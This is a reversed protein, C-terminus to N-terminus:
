NGASIRFYYPQGVTLGTVEYSTMTPDSLTAITTWNTQDTSQQITLYTANDAKNVWTLLIEGTYCGCGAACNAPAAPANNDVPTSESFTAQSAAATATITSTFNAILPPQFYAQALGSSNTTAVYTATPQTSTSTAALAGNGGSVTFTVPANALPTGSANTVKVVLPNSLFAGPTGSQTNGSVVTITPTIIAGGQSYYNTPDSGQQYDQLLTLGNGDPSSTASNGIQGFYQLEWWDPLGNGDSDYPVNVTYTSALPASELGQDDVAVFNFHFNGWTPPTWALSFPATFSEGVQTGEVYYIIAVINHGTSATATPQLTFPSGMPVSSPPAAPSTITSAIGTAGVGMIQRPTGDIQSVGLGLEGDLNTGWSVVTGDEKLVVAHYYGMAVDIAKGTLSTLNPILHQTTTDDGLQYRSNDGWAWVQGNATLALTSYADGTIKKVPESGFSSAPIEVPTTVATTTGNGLQGDENDGWVWLNGSTDVAFAHQGAAWISSISSLGAVQAVTGASMTYVTGDSKLALGFGQGLSVAQIGSLGSLEQFTTVDSSGILGLAAPDGAGWVNGANDLLLQNKYGTAAAVVNSVDSTQTPTPNLTGLALNGGLQGYNNLGWAYADGYPDVAVGAGISGPISVLSNMGAFLTPINRESTTGDGLSGDFNQGWAVSTGGSLLARSSMARATVATATSSLSVYAPAGAVLTSFLSPGTGSINGWGWVIGSQQLAVVHQGGAALLSYSNSDNPTYPANQVQYCAQELQGTNNNGWGVITGSQLAITYDSDAVLCTLGSVNPVTQPTTAQTTTGNGLQCNYNAGWAEITGDSMLAVSHETGCAIAVCSGAGLIEVPTVQGTTSTTGNGIQGYTNDGWAWVSGDVCLALNHWGHTAIAVIDSLGTVKVPALRATRDGTGLQGYTNNGWAWVSGDSGLALSHRSGGAVAIIPITITSAQVQVPSNRQIQTGDGIEGDANYGWAWVNGSSDVALSHSDGAGVAIASSFATIEQPVKSGALNDGLQGNADSGWTWVTGDSKLLVSHNWGAALAGGIMYVLSTTSSSNFGPAVANLKLVESSSVMITGGSPVSLSSTTPASGDSTYYITAGPTTSSVTVNQASAYTGAGPSATPAVSAPGTVSVVPSVSINNTGSAFVQFVNSQGSTFDSVSYSTASNTLTALITWSNDNNQEEVIWSGISDTSGPLTWSLNIDGSTDSTATLNTVSSLSLDFDFVQKLQGINAAINDTYTNQHLWSPTLQPYGASSLRGYFLSAITKLQGVNMATYDSPKVNSENYGNTAYDQQWGYVLNTLVPGAGGQAALDVNLEDVAKVSFQKVQGQTVAAYDNPVYNTTVIGDNTVVQPAVIASRSSWWAPPSGLATLACVGSCALLLGLTQTITASCLEERKQRTLKM